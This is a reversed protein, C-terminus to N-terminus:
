QTATEREAVYCSLFARKKRLKLVLDQKGKEVLREIYQDLESIDQRLRDLQSVPM